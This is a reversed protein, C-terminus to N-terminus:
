MEKRKFILLFADSRPPHKLAEEGFYYETRNASLLDVVGTLTYQERSYQDFWDFIMKESNPRALWSTSINVFLMYRPQAAEIESIMEQQMTSAYRQEEMLGYTYIHGTASHRRSYFYVQPESGIVAIRDGEATHSNLYKSIEVTEPFPNLGYIMRCADRPNATFFFLKQQNITYGAALLFIVVPATQLTTPYRPSFFFRRGASVAIGILLALVPLLLIYYHQRFYFGPCVSAFSFILFGAIFMANRRANSDWLLATVGVAALIWLLFSPGIVEPTNSLFIQLGLWFPVQSGYEWAYAFTWFWFKNFVGAALLLVCTLAFPTAFGTSFLIGRMIARKWVRPDRNMEGWVLYLIGFITFFIGPQKMLFALGLLVGSSYYGLAVELKITKRLLLLGGLALPVVFATAHAAFGLVSPSLSLLAYSAAAVIGAYRDLIDKTLLYILIVSLINVFFLGLHIGAVSQGFIGMILAYAAYIGPLKMNYAMMYPPIGQLILQGAYAYEGEDRELPFQLLRIRILATAVIIAALLVWYWKGSGKSSALAVFRSKRESRKRM